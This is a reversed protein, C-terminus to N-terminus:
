VGVGEWGQREEPEERRRERHERTGTQQQEAPQGGTRRDGNMETPVWLRDKSEGIARNLTTKVKDQGDLGAKIGFYTGVLTGIVTFSAAMAGFVTEPTRNTDSIAFITVSYMIAVVVIAALVLFFGWPTKRQQEEQISEQGRENDVPLEKGDMSDSIDVRPGPTMLQKVAV